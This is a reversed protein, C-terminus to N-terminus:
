RAKPVFQPVGQGQLYDCLTRVRGMARDLEPTSVGASVPGETSLENPDTSDVRYTLGVDSDTIIVSTEINEGGIPRAWHMGAQRMNTEPPSAYYTFVVDQTGDPLVEPFNVRHAEYSRKTGEEPLHHIDSDHNEYGKKAAAAIHDSLDKVTEALRDSEPSSQSSEYKM